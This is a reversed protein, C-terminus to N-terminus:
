SRGAAPEEGAHQGGPDGCRTAAREGARELLADLRRQEGIGVDAHHLGIAVRDVLLQALRAGAIQGRDVKARAAPGSYELLTVVRLRTVRAGPESAEVVSIRQSDCSVRVCISNSPKAM